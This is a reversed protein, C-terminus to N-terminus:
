GGVWEVCRASFGVVWGGVWGCKLWDLEVDWVRCAPPHERPRNDLVGVIAILFDLSTLQDTPYTDLVSRGDEGM